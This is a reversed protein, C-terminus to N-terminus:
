ATEDIELVKRFWSEILEAFQEPVDIPHNHWAGELIRGESQANGQKVLATLEEFDRKAMSTDHEGVAIQVPPLSGQPKFSFAFSAEQISPANEMGMTQIDEAMITFWEQDSPMHPMEWQAANNPPHISAGSVIAADVLDPRHQLLDLVVQGGLSVGAILIKRSGSKLKPIAQSLHLTATQFSFLGAHVATGHGPLDTAVVDYGHDNLIPTTTRYMRHSLGGGHVLIILPRTSAVQDESPFSFVSADSM